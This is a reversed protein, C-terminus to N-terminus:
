DHRQPLLYYEEGVRWKRGFPDTETLRKAESKSMVTLPKVAHTRMYEAAAAVDNLTLKRTMADTMAPLSVYLRMVGCSGDRM